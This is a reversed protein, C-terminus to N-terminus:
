QYRDTVAVAQVDPLVILLFNQFIQEYTQAKQCKAKDFSVVLTLLGNKHSM